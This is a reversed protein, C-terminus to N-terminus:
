GQTEPNNSGREIFAALNQLSSKSGMENDELRIGTPIDECLATVETRGDADALSWTIKMEGAFEPQDSEFESVWVIKENPLLEAFTGEVTDTDASSKGGLSEAPNKYTLSLRFKGGERPEFTHVHGTMGDPPLWSAVADPELFARYVVERPAKIIQSVRTSRVSSSPQTM